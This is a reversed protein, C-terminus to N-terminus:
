GDTAGADDRVIGGGDDSDVSSSEESVIAGADDGAATKADDSAPPKPAGAGGDDGRSGGPTERGTVAGADGDPTADVIDDDGPISPPEPELGGVDADSAEVAARMVATLKERCDPCLVVSRQTEDTPDFADPIVGYERLAENPGAGCFYCSQLDAM